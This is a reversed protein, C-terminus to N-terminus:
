LTVTEAEKGNTRYDPFLVILRAILEVALLGDEILLSAQSLTRYIRAIKWNLPLDITEM